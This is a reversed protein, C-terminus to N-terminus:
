NHNTNTSFKNLLTESTCYRTNIITSVHIQKMAFDITVHSVLEMLMLKFVISHALLYDNMYFYHINYRFIFWVYLNLTKKKNRNLNFQRFLINSFDDKM